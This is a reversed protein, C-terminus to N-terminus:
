RVAAPEAAQVPATSVATPRLRAVLQRLLQGAAEATLHHRDYNLDLTMRGAYSLLSLAVGTLPRVPPTSHVEELVLRGTILRGQRRPLPADAFVEGLNAFVGTAYCRRARTLVDLAGPIAALMAVCRVFALSTRLKKVLRTELTIRGLERGRDRFRDVRRDLFVMAVVNAAPLAGDRPGRLNVPFVIRLGRRRAASDHRVNWAHLTVLMDHLVVDNLTARADRAARLLEESEAPEFTHSPCDLVALRAMADLVPRSPTALPAPRILLLGAVGVVIGALEVPLRLAIRPWSLGFRARHRLLGVDLPRFAADAAPRAARDYAVLLDELFRFAGLGDCCAHHFQASIETRGRATRVWLRVGSSSGLDIREAGPFTRPDSTAGYDIWPRPDLAPVWALGRGGCRRVHAGLLPHRGVALEVATAFARREFEGSLVLRMVFTMPHEPRDDALM